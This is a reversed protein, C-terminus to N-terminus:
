FGLKNLYDTATKVTGSPLPKTTKKNTTAKEPIKITKKHIGSASFWQDLEGAGVRDNFNTITREAIDRRMKAMQLLTDKNLEITGTLVSRMFDREAPTDMGRAGVGLSHIMPFVDSGLMVDTIQTDTLTKADGGLLTRVKEVSKKLEAAPGTITDSTELHNVLSDLKDIGAVAANASEYQKQNLEAVNKGAEKSQSLNAQLNPDYPAGVLQQGQYTLPMVQKTRKDYSFAGQPTQFIVSDPAYSSQQPFIDKLEAGNAYATMMNAIAADDTIGAKTAMQPILSEAVLQRQSYAEKEKSKTAAAKEGEMGAKLGFEAKAKDQEYQAQKAAYDAKNQEAQALAQKYDSQALGQLLIDWPTGTKIPAYASADVQMPGFASPLPAAVSGVTQQYHQMAQQAAPDFVNNLDAM